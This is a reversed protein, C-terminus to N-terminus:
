KECTKIPKTLNEQRKELKGAATGSKGLTMSHLSLHALSVERERKQTRIQENKSIIFLDNARM